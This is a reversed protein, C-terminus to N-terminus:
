KNPILEPHLHSRIEDFSVIQIPCPETPSRDSVVVQVWPNAGLQRAAFTRVSDPTLEGAIRLLEERKDPRGFRELSLDREEAALSLSPPILDLRRTMGLVVEQFRLPEIGRKLIEDIVSQWGETIRGAQSPGGLTQGSMLLHMNGNPYPRLHTGHVYGLGDSERNKSDIEEHLIDELVTLAAGDSSLAVVPNYLRSVGVATKPLYRPSKHWANVPRFVSLSYSNKRKAREEETLARPLSERFAKVMGAAYNLTMDGVASVRIDSRELLPSMVSMLDGVNKFEKTGQQREFVTVGFRSVLNGLLLDSYDSSFKEEPLGALSPANRRGAALEAKSPVFNPWEKAVWEAASRVSEREGELLFRVEGQPDIEIKTFLEKLDYVAVSPAIHEQFAAFFVVFTSQERQNLSRSQLRLSLGVRKTRHDEEVLIVNGGDRQVTM